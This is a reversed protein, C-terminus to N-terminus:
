RIPTPLEVRSTGVFLGLWVATRLTMAGLSAGAVVGSGSAYLFLLAALVLLNLAFIAGAARKGWTASRLLAIGAAVYAAGMATNFVLLPRFVAYGPDAGGLVRSGAALTLLGFGIAVAALLFRLVRPRMAPENRDM